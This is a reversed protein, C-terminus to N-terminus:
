QIHAGSVFVIGVQKQSFVTQYCRAYVLIKCVFLRLPWLVNVMLPLIVTFGTELKVFNSEVAERCEFVLMNEEKTVDCRTLMSVLQVCHYKRGVTLTGQPLWANLLRDISYLYSWTFYWNISHPMEKLNSHSTFM